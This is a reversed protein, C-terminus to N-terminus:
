YGGMMKQLPSDAKPANSDKSRSQLGFITNLFSEKMTGAPAPAAQGALSMKEPDVLAGAASKGVASARNSPPPPDPMSPSCM